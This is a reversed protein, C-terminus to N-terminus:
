KQGKLIKRFYNIYALSYFVVKEIISYHLLEENSKIAEIKAELHRKGSTKSLGGKKQRYATGIGGSFVFQCRSMLRLNLEWDEYLNMDYRYGGLELYTSKPFIYDRPTYFGFLRTITNFRINKNLNKREVTGIVNGNEDVKITQSFVCCNKNGEDVCQNIVNMENEIKDVTYYFDDGDIMTIYECTTAKIAVDRAASVGINKEGYIVKVRKERKEIKKLIEASGDTSCDDYVVIEKVPYSQNLISNICEEIYLANNYNPIIVAVDNQAM